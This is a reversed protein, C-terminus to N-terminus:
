VPVAAPNYSMLGLSEASVHQGPKFNSERGSHYNLATKRSELM